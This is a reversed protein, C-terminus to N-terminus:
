SRPSLSWDHITGSHIHFDPLVCQRCSSMSCQRRPPQRLSHPSCAELTLVSVGVVARPRRVLWFNPLKAKRADAMEQTTKRLAEETAETTRRELEDDDFEFKRKKGQADTVSDAKATGNSTSAAGKNGLSAQSTEFDRLVRERAAARAAAMEQESEARMRELLVTQRKIDKKQALLSSM